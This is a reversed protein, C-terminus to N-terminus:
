SVNGISMKLLSSFSKLVLVQNIDQQQGYKILRKFSNTIASFIGAEKASAQNHSDHNVM